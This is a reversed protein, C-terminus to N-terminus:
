SIRRQNRKSSQEEPSARGGMQRFPGSGRPRLALSPGSPCAKKSRLRGRPAAFRRPFFSPVLTEPVAESLHLDRPCAQSVPSEVFGFSFVLSLNSLDCLL